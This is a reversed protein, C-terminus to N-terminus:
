RRLAAGTTDSGADDEESEETPPTSGDTSDTTPDVTSNTAAAAIAEAATADASGLRAEALAVADRADLVGYGAAPDPGAAAVDHASETLVARLDTPTADPYQELLLAATGAAYPAALSTGGTIDTGPAAVTDPAVLSVGTRNDVPGRSSFDAVDSTEYDYAGVALVGPVTAPVALSGNPTRYTLDHTAFLELRHATSANAGEVALYYRGRPVTADISAAGEGTASAVVRQGGVGRRILYLEYDAATTNEDVPSWQLSARVRGAFVDGGALANGEAGPQFTVWRRESPGHVAAWHRQGYNGASTVFLAEGSANRAITSLADTDAGANGFYSGADVIIDAGSARLWTVAERYEEAATEDGVAAVHINAGPATDAVVSAVATGHDIDDTTGFSRYAVVHGALEPHSVRFDGDIIGVTVNEGTLGQEHLDLAGIRAAGDTVRGGPGRIDRLRITEVAPDTSLDRVASLPMYAEVHHTGQRVYRRQVDLGAASLAGAERLKVTVLVERDVPDPSVTEDRFLRELEDVAQSSDAFTQREPGLDVAFVPLLPAALIAVALVLRVGTERNM